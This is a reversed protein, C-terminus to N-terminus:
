CASCTAARTTARGTCGASVASRVKATDAGRQAVERDRHAAAAKISSLLGSAALGRWSAGHLRGLLEMLRRLIHLNADSRELVLDGLWANLTSLFLADAALAAMAKPPAKLLAATCQQRADLSDCGKMVDLVEQAAV